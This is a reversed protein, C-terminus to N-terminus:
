EQTSKSSTGSFVSNPTKLVKKGNIIKSVVIDGEKLGSLVETEKDNSIGITIKIKKPSASATSGVAGAEPSKLATDFIQVYMGDSATKIASNPLILTDKKIATVIMVNATMGPKIRFDDTDFNIKVNYTVVGSSVEGVPDIEVVKGSISLDPIADFSVTADDGLKIKAVDVENMSVTALKNKTVVTALVQGVSVNEGVVVPISAVMGSFPARAVYDNLNSKADELANQKQKLILEKSKIELDVVSSTSQNQSQSQLALQYANYNSLYNVYKKNPIDITWYHNPSLNGLFKVFLGSDGIPTPVISSAVGSASVLGSASFYYGSGANYLSIKIQGEKGLSYNGTIELTNNVVSSDIPVSELGSSLLTNYANKVNLSKEEDTNLANAKATELDLQAGELALEADRLAKEADNNEISVISQGFGVSDGSKLNIFSIDGSVKAKLSVEKSTSVQGSGSVSSIIGGKLVPTTVYRIQGNTNKHLVFYGILIILIVGLVSKVKNKFYFSKIKNFNQILINQQM